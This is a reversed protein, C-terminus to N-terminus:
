WGFADLVAKVGRDYDGDIAMPYLIVREVHGGYKKMIRAAETEFQRFEVERGPHIFLSAVLVLRPSMFIDEVGTVSFQERSSVRCNEHHCTRFRRFPSTKTLAPRFLALLRERRGSSGLVPNLGRYPLIQSFITMEAVNGFVGRM